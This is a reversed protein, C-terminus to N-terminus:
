VSEIVSDALGSLSTECLRKQALTNEEESVEKGRLCKTEIGKMQALTQEDSTKGKAHAVKKLSGKGM